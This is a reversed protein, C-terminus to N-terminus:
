QNAFHMKSKSLDRRSEKFNRLDKLVSGASTPQQGGGGSQSPKVRSGGEMGRTMGATRRRQERRIADRDFSSRSEQEDSLTNTSSEEQGSENSAPNWHYDEACERVLEQIQKEAPIRQFWGPDKRNKNFTADVIRDFAKDLKEGSFGYQKSLVGLAFNRSEEFDRKRQDEASLQTQVERIAQGDHERTRKLMEKAMISIYKKAYAPDDQTLNRRKLEAVVQEALDESEDDLPDQQANRRLNSPQQLSRIEQIEEELSSFRGKMSSLEEQTRNFVSQLEKYGHEAEEHSRFRFHEDGSPHGSGGGELDLGEFDDDEGISCFKMRGAQLTADQLGNTIWQHLRLSM